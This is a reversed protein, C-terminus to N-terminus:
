FNTVNAIVNRDNNLYVSLGFYTCLYNCAFKYMFGPFFKQLYFAHLLM